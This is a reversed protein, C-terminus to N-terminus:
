REEKVDDDHGEMTWGMEEEDEAVVGDEDTSDSGFKGEAM